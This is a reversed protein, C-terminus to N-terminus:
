KTTLNLEAPYVIDYTRIGLSRLADLAAIARDSHNNAGTFIAMVTFGAKRLRGIETVLDPYPEFSVFAITAGWPLKSSWRGILQELNAADPRIEIGALKDLIEYLWPTGTHPSMEPRGFEPPLSKDWSSAEWGPDYGNSYLGFPQKLENMRSALSAAVVISAEAIQRWAFSKDPPRLDLFVVLPVIRTREFQKVLLSGLRATNRWDIYRPDDGSQYERVGAIRSPDPLLPQRTRLNGLPLRSPLLLKELPAIHPYVVLRSRNQWSLHTGSEKSRTDFIVGAVADLPGIQFRGRRRCELQYYLQRKEEGHVALLWEPKEAIELGNPVTDRLTLWPLPFKGGNHVTLRVEITDGRFAREIVERTVRTNRSAQWLWFRNSLTLVALLLMAIGLLWYNLWIGQLVLLAVIGIIALWWM